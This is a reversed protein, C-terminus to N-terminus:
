GRIVKKVFPIKSIVFVSFFSLLTAGIFIALTDLPAAGINSFVTKLAFLFVPHILYVGFVFSSLKLVAANSKYNKRKLLYHLFTFVAISYLFVTLCNGEYFFNYLSQTNDYFMQTCFATALYGLLGCIYISIRSLMNIETNLIYWGMIYYVISDYFYNMQYNSIYNMLLNDRVTYFNVIQNVFPLVFCVIISFNLYSTILPLNDRKIFTRLIPTILYLGILVFLYWLHYHGYFMAYIIASFSIDEKFVLPKIIYYAVSYVISWIILLVLIHLAAHIIRKNSLKKDENLMLAGSIMFFVPVAFRTFSNLLNNSIFEISNNPYNKVYDVSIHLLVVACIAIIRMVDFSDVRNYTFDAKDM